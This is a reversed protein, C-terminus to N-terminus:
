WGASYLTQYAGSYDESKDRSWFAMKSFFGDEEEFTQYYDFRYVGKEDLVFGNCEAASM